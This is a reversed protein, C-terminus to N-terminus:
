VANDDGGLETDLLAEMEKETQEMITGRNVLEEAPPKNVAGVKPPNLKDAVKKRAEEIVNDGALYRGAVFGLGFSIAGILWVAVSSIIYDNLNM